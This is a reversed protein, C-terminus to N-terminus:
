DENSSDSSGSESKNLFDTPAPFEKETLRQVETFDLGMDKLGKMYELKAKSVKARAKIMKTQQKSIM